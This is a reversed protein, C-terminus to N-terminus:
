CPGLRTAPASTTARAILESVSWRRLPQPATPAPVTDEERGPQYPHRAPRDGGPQRRRRRGFIDRVATESIFEGAVFGRDTSETSM